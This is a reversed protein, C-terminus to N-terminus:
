DNLTESVLEIEFDPLEECSCLLDSVPDGSPETLGLAETDWDKLTV